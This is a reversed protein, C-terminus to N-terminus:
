RIFVSKPPITYTCINFSSCGLISDCKAACQNVDYFTLGSSIYTLYTPNQASYQLNQFGPVLVYDPPTVANMASSTFPAYNLFSNPSDDPAVPPEITIYNGPSQPACTGRKTLRSAAPTETAACAGATTAAAADATTTAAAASSIDSAIISSVVATPNYSAASTVADGVPAGVAPAWCIADYADFDIDQPEAIPIAFAGSLLVTSILHSSRM